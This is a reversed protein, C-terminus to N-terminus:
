SDGKGEVKGKTEKVLWHTSFAGGFFAVSCSRLAPPHRIGMLLFTACLLRFVLGAISIFLVLLLGQILPHHSHKNSQPYRM